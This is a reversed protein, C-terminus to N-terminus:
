DLHAEGGVISSFTGVEVWTGSGLWEGTFQDQYLSGGECLFLTCPVSFEADGGIFSLTNGVIDRLWLWNIIGADGDVVCGSPIYLMYDTDGYSGSAQIAGALHNGQTYPAVDYGFRMAMFLQTTPWETPNTKTYTILNREFLTSAHSWGVMPFNEKGTLLSSPILWIKAGESYNLDAECPLDGTDVQGSQWPLM